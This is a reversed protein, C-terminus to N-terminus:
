IGDCKYSYLRSYARKLSRRAPRRQFRWVSRWSKKAGSWVKARLDRARRCCRRYLRHRSVTCAFLTQSSHLLSAPDYTGRHDKMRTCIPVHDRVGRELLGAALHRIESGIMCMTSALLRKRAKAARSTSNPSTPKLPITVRRAGFVGERAV